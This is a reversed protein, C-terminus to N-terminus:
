TKFTYYRLADTLGRDGARQARKHAFQKPTSLSLRIWLPGLLIIRSALWIGAWIPQFRTMYIPFYQSDAWIQRRPIKYWALEFEFHVKSSHKTYSLRVEFFLEHPTEFGFIKRPRHSIIGNWKNRRLILWNWIRPFISDYCDTATEMWDGEWSHDHTFYIDAARESAITEYEAFEIYRWLDRHLM